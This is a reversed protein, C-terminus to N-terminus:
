AIPCATMDNPDFPKSSFAVFRTNPLLDFRHTHMPPILIVNGPQINFQRIEGAIKGAADVKATRITGGGELFYFIESKERHFHQGLPKVPDKILFDQFASGSFGFERIDRRVDSSALSLFGCEVDPEAAFIYDYLDLIPSFVKEELLRERDFATLGGGEECENKELHGSVHALEDSTLEVTFTYALMHCGVTQPQQERDKWRYDLVAALGFRTEPLLLTTEREFRRAASLNKTEHPVMRGGLWWWGNMPKARRRALYITRQDRDIPVIDTCAPVFCQLGKGYEEDSLRMPPISQYGDETYSRILIDM